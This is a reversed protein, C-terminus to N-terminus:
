SRPYATTNKKFEKIVQFHKALYDERNFDNDQGNSDDEFHRKESFNLDLQHLGAIFDAEEEGKWPHILDNMQYPTVHIHLKLSKSWLGHKLPTLIQKSRVWVDKQGSHGGDLWYIHQISDIFTKLEAKRTPDYKESTSLNETYWAVEHLFQNLVICGKSFGVLTIVHQQAANNGFKQHLLNLFLNRLHVLGEYDGEHDPIGFLSESKVFNKYVCFIKYIKKSPTVLWIYSSKFKNSLIRLTSEYSWESWQKATPNDKMDTEFNQVDGPFFIVHDYSRSNSTTNEQFQPPHHLVTNIKEADGCVDDFVTIESHDM